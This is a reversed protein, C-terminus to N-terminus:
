CACSRHSICLINWDKKMTTLWKGYTSCTMLGESRSNSRFTRQCSKMQCKTCFLPFKCYRWRLGKGMYMSKSHGELKDDYFSRATLINVFISIYGRFVLMQLKIIWVCIDFALFRRRHIILVVIRFCCCSAFHWLDTPGTFPRSNPRISSMSGKMTWKSLLMRCEHTRDTRYISNLHSFNYKGFDM